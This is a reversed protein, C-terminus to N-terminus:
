KLVIEVTEKRSGEIQFDRPRNNEDRFLHLTTRSNKGAAEYAALLEGLIEQIPKIQRNARDM